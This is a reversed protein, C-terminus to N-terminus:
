SGGGTIISTDILPELPTQDLMKDVAKNIPLFDIDPLKARNNPKDKDDAKLSAKRHLIHLTVFLILSLCLLKRQQM